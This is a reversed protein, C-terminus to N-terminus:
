DYREYISLVIDAYRYGMDMPGYSRLAERVEGTRGILNALMRTGYNINFEPDFLDDMSPRSAFCPGNKCMFNAALGDRPMVQMLGVAGSSSYAQSNGGSEQLMVAAVLNPDIGQNSANETILDCWQLISDPYASSVRCSREDEQNNAAEPAPAQPQDAPQATPTEAPLATPQPEQMAAAAIIELVAPVNSAAAAQVEMQPNGMLKTILVLTVGCFIIAPFIARQITGM